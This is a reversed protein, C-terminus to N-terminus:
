QQSNEIKCISSKQGAVARQQLPIQKMIEVIVNLANGVTSM